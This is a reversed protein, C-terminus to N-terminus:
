TTSRLSSRRARRRPPRCRCCKLWVGFVMILIIGSVFEPIVTCSLGVVSIIRDVPKGVNLAAVVGGFIGLPVVIMFALM